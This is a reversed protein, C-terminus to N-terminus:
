LQSTAGHELAVALYSLAGTWDIFALAARTHFPNRIPGVRLVRKGRGYAYGTEWERGGRTEGFTDVILFDAKDIDELDKQAEKIFENETGSYDRGVQEMWRSTVVFGLKTLEDRMERLRPMDVWAGAVYVRLRRAM